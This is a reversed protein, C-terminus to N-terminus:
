RLRKKVEEVFRNTLLTEQAGTRMDRIIITGEFAEKQGVLLVQPVRIREAIKLQAKLSKKGLAEAVTIGGARLEAMLRVGSKKAQEGVAIFFVKHPRPKSTPQVAFARLAAVVADVRITGMVAPVMRGRLLEALYDYRGGVALPESKWPTGQVARGPVVPPVAETVVEFVTRNHYDNDPILYPNPEYTIANDEVLELVTKFHNNCNQCLYDLVIPADARLALCEADTCVFCRTPNKELAAACARCLKEKRTRYYAKLKERYNPRCVRCGLTNIHLKLDKFRLERLFELTSLIAEVDYVADSDGILHYSIEHSLNPEHSKPSRLRFQPGVTWVKLPSALHGLRHELHARMVGIAADPRLALLDRKAKVLYLSSEGCDLGSVGLGAEFVSAFEILPPEIRRSDHLLAILEGAEAVAHRLGDEDPLVDPIGPPCQFPVAKANRDITSRKKTEAPM